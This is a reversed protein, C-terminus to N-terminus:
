KNKKALERRTKKIKKRDETVKYGELIRYNIKLKDKKYIIDKELEKKREEVWDIYEEIETQTLNMIEEDSLIHDFKKNKM